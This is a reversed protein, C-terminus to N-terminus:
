IKKVSEKEVVYSDIHRVGLHKENGKIKSLLIKVVSDAMKRMDVNYTTLKKAFLHGYLYNDYGVISIDDPIKYNKEILVDYLISATFDCNCVFATPMIEPLKIKLMLGNYINRDEILWQPQFDISFEALAKRYGFYRDMINENAKISGVFAIDKHGHELLYRTMKYMGIYNNSVVADCPIDDYKFDLLVIPVGSKQVLNYIYDHEMWGIIILGDVAREYIMKPLKNSYEEQEEPVELMTTGQKKSSVYAIHQYMEWYFSAGITLYKDSVIVGIRTNKQKEYKSCNYGLEKAKDFIEDRLNKSVGKKGSLANSVTVVSVQLAQAIDKLKVEEM